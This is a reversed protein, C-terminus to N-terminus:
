RQQFSLPAVHTPMALWLLTAVATLWIALLAKM